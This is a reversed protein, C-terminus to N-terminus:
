ADVKPSGIMAAESGILPKRDIESPGAQSSAGSGNSSPTGYRYRSYGYGYYSRRLIRHPAKNLVVGVVNAGVDGLSRIASIAQSASTKGAEVVLITASAHAAISLPDSVVGAPPTDIVILDQEEALATLLRRARQSELLEAPNPPITGCTLLSLNAFDTAHMGLLRAIPTAQPQMILDSLGGNVPKGFLRHQGPNRMDADILLVRKESSALAVALNAATCSKGEGPRASTIVVSSMDVDPTAFLVNTRLRRYAEMVEATRRKRTNEPEAIVALHNFKPVVGLCPLALRDRVDDATKLAQDFYQILAALSVAVLLAIFAGLLTDLLHSPSVPSAPVPAPAALSVTELNQAQTAKFTGFNLTLQSLLASNSDIAATVATTDKHATEDSILQQEEQALTSQLANIQAQFSAGAQAIRLANQTNVQSVYTNMIANAIQAATAASPDRVVVDVLESNSAPTAAVEKALASETTDLHLQKIVQQLLAPETMLTAATTTAESANVSLIGTTAGSGPAAVVLVDGTAEYIPTVKHSVYYGVAAGFLTLLVIPVAWKRLLKRLHEPQMSQNPERWWYRVQGRRSSGSRAATAGNYPLHEATGLVGSADDGAQRHSRGRGGALGAAESAVPDVANDIQALFSGVDAM